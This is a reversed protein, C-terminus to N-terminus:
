ASDPPNDGHRACSCASPDVWVDSGDAYFEHKWVPVTDKITDIIYRCALFAADRHPSSVGIWVALDGPQLRGIRHVARAGHIAFKQGAAELVANGQKLALEPYAEYDLSVVDKGLHHNRVWGEFTCFGGSEVSQLASRLPGTEIPDHTLQFDM